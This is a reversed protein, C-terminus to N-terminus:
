NEWFLVLTIVFHFVQCALNVFCVILLFAPLIVIALVVLIQHFDLM